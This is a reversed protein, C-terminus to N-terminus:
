DDKKIRQESVAFREQEDASLKYCLAIRVTNDAPWHDGQGATAPRIFLVVDDNIDMREGWPKLSHESTTEVLEVPKFQKTFQRELASRVSDLKSGANKLYLNVAFATRHDALGYVSDSAISGESMLWGVRVSETSDVYQSQWKNLAYGEQKLQDANIPFQVHQGAITASFPQSTCGYASILGVILLNRANM